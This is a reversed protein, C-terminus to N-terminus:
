VEKTESTTTSKNIHFIITKIVEYERAYFIYNICDSTVFKIQLGFISYFINM